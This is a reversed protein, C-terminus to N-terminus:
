QTREFTILGGFVSGVYDVQCSRETNRVRLNGLRDKLPPTNAKASKCASYGSKQLRPAGLKGCWWCIEQCEVLYATPTSNIVGNPSKIRRRCSMREHKNMDVAEVTTRLGAPYLVFFLVLKCPRATVLLKMANSIRENKTPAVDTIGVTM